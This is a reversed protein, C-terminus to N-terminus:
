HTLEHSVDVGRRYDMAVDTMVRAVDEEAPPGKRDIIVSVQKPM